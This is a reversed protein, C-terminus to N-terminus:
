VVYCKLVVLSVVEDAATDHGVLATVAISELFAVVNDSVVVNMVETM